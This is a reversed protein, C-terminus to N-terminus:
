SCYLLVPTSTLMHLFVLSIFVHIHMHIHIDIPVHFMKCVMPAFNYFVYDFQDQQPLHESVVVTGFLFLWNEYKKNAVMAELGKLVHCVEQCDPEFDKGDQARFHRDRRLKEPDSANNYFRYAGDKGRFFFEPAILIKLTNPDPDAVREAKEVTDKMIQLRQNVDRVPNNHGLYCQWLTNSINRAIDDPDLETAQGYSNLGYCEPNKIGPRGPLEVPAGGTYIQFGLAQFHTYKSILAEDHHNHNINKDLISYSDHHSSSHHHHQSERLLNSSSKATAVEEQFNLRFGSGPAASNSNSMSTTANEGLFAFVLTALLLGGFFSALLKLNESAARKNGPQNCSSRTASSLAATTHQNERCRSGVLLHTEENM